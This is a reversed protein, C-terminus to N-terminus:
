LIKGNHPLVFGARPAYAEVYEMQFGFSVNKTVRNLYHHNICDFSGGFTIILYSRM